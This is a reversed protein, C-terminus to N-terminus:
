YEMFSSHGISQFHKHFDQKSKIQVRDLMCNYIEIPKIDFSEPM